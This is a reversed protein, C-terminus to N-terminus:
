QMTIKQQWLVDDKQKIQVIYQASSLQMEDTSLSLNMKDVTPNLSKSYMKRGSLDYIVVTIIGVNFPVAIDLNLIDSFPNPFIKASIPIDFKVSAIKSYTFEGSFDVSKLRYYSVGFVPANDIFDYKLLSHSNGTAKIEGIKSYNAGDASREIEFRSVGEETLSEWVLQTTNNVKEATFSKLEIPLVIPSINCGPDIPIKQPVYVGGGNPESVSFTATGPATGNYTFTTGLPNASQDYTNLLYSSGNGINGNGAVLATGSISGGGIVYLTADANLVTGNTSTLFFQVTLSTATQSVKQVTVCYTQSHLSLISGILTGILFIIKNMM